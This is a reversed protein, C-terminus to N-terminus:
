CSATVGFPRTSPRCRGTAMSIVTHGPPCSCNASASASGPRATVAAASSLTSGTCTCTTCRWTLSSSAATGSRIAATSCAVHKNSVPNYWYSCRDGFYPVAHPKGWTWRIGDPSTAPTLGAWWNGRSSLLKYRRDPNTDADDRLVTFDDIADDLVINTDPYVAGDVPAPDFTTGDRSTAVCIPYKGRGFRDIHQQQTLESNPLAKYYLRLGEPEEIISGYCIGGGEWPHTPTLLPAGTKQPRNIQRLLSRREAILHDDILLQTGDDIAIPEPAQQAEVRGLRDADMRRIPDEVSEPAPEM